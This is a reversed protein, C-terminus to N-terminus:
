GHARDAGALALRHTLAAEFAGYDSMPRIGVARLLPHGPPAGIWTEVHQALKETARLERQRDVASEHVFLLSLVAIAARSRVCAGEVEEFPVDAGLYIPSVGRASALVAAMMAGLEHRHGPPTAFVVRPAGAPLVTTRLLIALHSRIQATVAHEEAVTLNGATWREGVERLLPVILDLVMARPGLLQSARALLAEARPLDLESIAELYPVFIPRTETVPDRSAALATLRADALNAIEGISHGAAIADRLRTLREIDHSSYRRANGETRAPTIAGYRREWVRVV